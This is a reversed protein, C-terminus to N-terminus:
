GVATATPSAPQMPPREASKVPEHCGDPKFEVSQIDGTASIVVKTYASEAVKYQGRAIECHGLPGASTTNVFLPKQAGAAQSPLISRVVWKGRWEAPLDKGVDDIVLVNRRHIHGALVLSFKSQRLKRILWERREDFSGYDAERGLTENPDTRIALTPYEWGPFSAGDRIAVLLAHDFNAGRLRKLSDEREGDTGKFQDAEFPISPRRNGSVGLLDIAANLDNTNYKVRGRSLEDEKWHGWPGIPPAHMALIKAKATSDAVHEVLAQQVPTISKLAKPGGYTNPKLNKGRDVGGLIVPLDVNEDNGWDLMVLHYGGPLRWTYDLFPNIVLLYWAVSEVCTELPSRRLRIQGNGVIAGWIKWGVMSLVMWPSTAYTFKDFGPGHAAHLDKKRIAFDKAPPSGFTDAPYPNIRWDHNGLSTYVATSYKDASALFEYFMFWNRDRWYSIDEGLPGWGRYGRGYDILDGTMLLVDSDAKSKSYLERCVTNWNHFKVSADGSKRLNEEYTDTRIDIHLDTMHGIRLTPAASPYVFVPHLVEVRHQPVTPKGYEYEYEDYLRREFKKNVEGNFEKPVGDNGFRSHRAYHELLLHLEDSRDREDANRDRNVWFLHYLVPQMRAAADAVRSMSDGGGAAAEPLFRAMAHESIQVEYLYPLRKGEPIPFEKLEGAYFQRVWVSLGLAFGGKGEPDDLSRTGGLNVIRARKDDAEKEDASSDSAHVVIDEEKFSFQVGDEPLYRKKRRESWPVIRLHRSVDKKSLRRPSNPDRDSLILLCLTRSAVSPENSGPAIVAPFGLAPWLIRAPVYTSEDRTNDRDRVAGGTKVDAPTKLKRDIEAIRDAQKEWLSRTDPAGTDGAPGGGIKGASKRAADRADFGAAGPQAAPEDKEPM